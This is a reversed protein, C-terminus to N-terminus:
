LVVRRVTWFSHICVSCPENSGEITQGERSTHLHQDALKSDEGKKSQVVLKKEVGSMRDTRSM